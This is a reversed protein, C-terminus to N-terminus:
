RRRRKTREGNATAFRWRLGFHSFDAGEIGIADPSSIAPLLTIQADLNDNIQVGAIVGARLVHERRGPNVLVEEAVGVSIADDRGFRLAYGVRARWIWPPEIVMGLSEEFVYYGDDVNPHYNVTVLWFPGGAAVPVGGALESELAVHSATPGDNQEVDLRSYSTRPTLLSRGFPAFYRVGSRLELFPIAGKAGFYGGVGKASVLPEVEASVHSYFPRGYGISLRPRAYPFGLELVAAAFGGPRGRAWYRPLTVDSATMGHDSWTQEASWAPM